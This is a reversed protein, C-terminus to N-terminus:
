FVTGHLLITNTLEMMDGGILLLMRSQLELCIILVPVYLIYVCVRKLGIRKKFFLVGIAMFFVLLLPLGSQSRLINALSMILAMFLTIVLRKRNENEKMFLILLPLGLALVWCGSWYESAKDIYLLDGFTFQIIIPSILALVKSHFLKYMLLPYLMIVIGGSVSQAICFMDYGSLINFKSMLIPFYLVYGITHSIHSFDFKGAERFTNLGYELRECRFKPVWSNGITLLHPTVLVIASVLGFLMLAGYVFLNKKSKM